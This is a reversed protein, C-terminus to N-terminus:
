QYKRTMEEVNGPWLRPAVCGLLPYKGGSLRPRDPPVPCQWPRDARVVMEGADRANDNVEFRGWIPIEAYLAWRDEVMQSVAELVQETSDVHDTHM